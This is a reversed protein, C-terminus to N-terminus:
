EKIDSGYYYEGVTEIKINYDRLAWIRIEEMKKEFDGMNLDAFSETKPFADSGGVRMFMCRLGYDMDAPSHGIFPDSNILAQILAGWYYGNQNTGEHPQKSTRGARFKKVIIKLKTKPAKKNKLSTTYTKFREQERPSIFELKNGEIYCNFEQKPNAM